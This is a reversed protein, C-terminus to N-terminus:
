KLRGFGVLSSSGLSITRTGRLVQNSENGGITTMTSGNVSIVLNVHQTSGGDPTQEGIYFAADGPKPKEDGVEFYKEKSKFYSQLGLVSPYQWGGDGVGGAFPVGADKYVWSVFDACWAEQRGDTYTLIDGGYELKGKNEQYERKAVAVISGGSSSEDCSSSAESTEGGSGSGYLEIAERALARRSELAPVGAAEIHIEFYDTADAPNNIKKYQNLDFNNSVVPNNHMHQWILELQTALEYIPGKIGATKAMGLIKSGPTWQILGWGGGGADEPNKSRGGPDQINQPDGGSEHMVNGYVGAAQAPQLGKNIFFNFIKEGNNKGILSSDTCYNGGEETNFYHVGSDLVNTQDNSLAAVTGGFQGLILLVVSLVYFSKQVTNKYNFKKLMRMNIAQLQITGIATARAVKEQIASLEM